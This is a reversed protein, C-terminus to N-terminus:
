QLREPVVDITVSGNKWFVAPLADVLGCDGSVCGGVFNQGNSEFSLTVRVASPEASVRISQSNLDKVFYAYTSGVLEFSKPTLPIEKESKGITLTSGSAGGFFGIPANNLHLKANGAFAQVIGALEAYTIRLEAASAPSGAWVGVFAVLIAQLIRRM